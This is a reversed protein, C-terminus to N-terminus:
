SVNDAPNAGEQPAPLLSLQFSINKATAIKQIPMPIDAPDAIALKEVRRQINCERYVRGNEHKRPMGYPWVMLM